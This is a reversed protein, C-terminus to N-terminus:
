HQLAKALLPALINSFEDTWGGGAVPNLPETGPLISLARLSRATKAIFVVQSGLKDYNGASAPLDLANLAGAIHLGAITQAVVGPLDLHRNSIHLALVGDTTLRGLYMALAEKTLLHVPIANSSFADIVLYDFKAEPEKELTLRADGIVMRAEPHCRALFTFKAPDRAIAVVLPDIEYFTWSDGAKAHCAMAGTGLGVIGVSLRGDPLSAIERAIGVARAMPGGPYYYTAPLANTVAKGDTDRIRETGHITIGHYLMRHQGDPSEVVRHVGFFSREAEGASKGCPLLALAAVGILGVWLQREPRDAMLLIGAALVVVVIIKVPLRPPTIGLIIMAFIALLVFLGLVLFKLGDRYIAWESLRPLLSPRLALGLILLLPYEVITSFIQPAVLAAFIGGLVGGLSMLLYFTTLYAADPRQEYLERHAVMSTVFLALFGIGSSLLWGSDGLLALGVFAFAVIRPQWAVFFAHSFLPRASFTLIFTTLFLALPLVWLFPASAVDTTLYTTFAVLLGSPVFSLQIWTACQQRTPAKAPVRNNVLGSQDLHSQRVRMVMGCGFISFALALFGSSWLSSQATLGFLPEVLIPYLLLAALSGFNSAGYLFYPDAAHAHGTRGFWSQLLPANASVAFFPLGVGGALIGLLWVYTNGEPPASAAAPLAIPLAVCAALLIALHVIVARWPTLRSNL